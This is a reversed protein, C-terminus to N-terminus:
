GCKTFGCAPCIHCGEQFVLEEDCDPCQQRGLGNPAHVPVKAKLYRNEMVWAIADPISLLLGKKQFKPHEGGIGKLQRVIEVVEVGSRLALSVLRGIAEAKATISRGSKGITTFLEFPRGDVENITVYLVGLGTEVKQTFGYVIDPRERVVSREKKQEEKSKEGDGTCLVQSQKCGDRYVTVGKCGREYAMWYISRIDDITASNPLNVTKSVANDTYEQFAAQMKLHWVPDIDMATVFVDRMHQPLHEMTQVSGKQTVAEMLKESYCQEDKLAQEFYPNVEVLREGDMVHRAFSLAFL